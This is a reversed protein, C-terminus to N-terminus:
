VITNMPIQISKKNKENWMSEFNVVEVVNLANLFFIDCFTSKNEYGNIEQENRAFVFIYFSTIKSRFTKHNTNNEKREESKLRFWQLLYCKNRNKKKPYYLHASCDGMEFPGNPQPM